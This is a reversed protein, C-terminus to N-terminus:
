LGLKQFEKNTGRSVRAFLRIIAYHHKELIKKIGLKRLSPAIQAIGAVQKDTYTRIDGSFDRVEVAKTGDSSGFDDISEVLGLCKSLPLNDDLDGGTCTEYFLIVLTGKRIKM